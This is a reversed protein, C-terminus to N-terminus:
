CAWEMFFITLIESRLKLINFSCFNVRPNKVCFHKVLLLGVIVQTIENM